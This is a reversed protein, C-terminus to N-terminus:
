YCYFFEKIINGNWESIITKDCNFLESFLNKKFELSISDSNKNNLLCKLDKVLSRFTNKSMTEFRLPYQDIFSSAITIDNSSPIVLFEHSLKAQENNIDLHIYFHIARTANNNYDDESIENISKRQKYYIKDKIVDYGMLSLLSEVTNTCTNNTNNM